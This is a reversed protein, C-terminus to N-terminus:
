SYIKREKIEFYYITLPLGNWPIVLKKSYDLKKNLKKNFIIKEVEINIKNILKKPIKFIGIKPGFPNIIKM